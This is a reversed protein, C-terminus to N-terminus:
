QDAPADTAPAPSREATHTGDVRGDSPPEDHDATPMRDSTHPAAAADATDDSTTTGADDMVVRGADDVAGAEKAMAALEARRTDSDARQRLGDRHAGAPSDTASARSFLARMMNQQRRKM